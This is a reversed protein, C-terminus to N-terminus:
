VSLDKTNRQIFNTLEVGHLLNQSLRALDFAQKSLQTKAEGEAMKSLKVSLAHNSNIVVNYSDPMSGFIDMGMGQMKQMEKMRREWEPKILTLFSDDPALAETSFRFQGNHAFDKEFMEKLVTQDSDSLVSEKKADKDILKDVSDSDVRKWSVGEMKNEVNSIFHNDLVGDMALVEYGRKEVTQIFSDHAIMDNSYLFVVKGDKDTQTASIKEKYEDLTYYDKAKNQLLCFKLGRDYFKEESIMGYKVFTGISEWKNNYETRDQKYIEELKDAVKKTIHSNIKKVNADSQLYSRSVNLPIDPSDIVGHLLMLFEPVIDQVSDTVFVQNSYLQIKNRTPEFENKIKPFYLIGTLKFPYDVNLHIWFLPTESFPYLEKYFAEYEEKTCDAPAKTWLPAPNNLVKEEFEIEIPLFKCYKELINRIRAEENFELSDDALHLIVETGREAKDAEVIEFETSGDCSWKVAASGEKYSKTILEVKQAVMFASYFGLGFHGIVQGGKDKYKDLFEEASSFALQNIYKGVEEETMGIGNDIIHLTKAEKNLKVTIKLDGLEGTAEGSSALTKLKHTADVANSVLERLFIEHDSYLFKKIIPFINETHVSINGKTAM